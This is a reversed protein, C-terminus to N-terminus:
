SVLVICRNTIAHKLTAITQVSWVPEDPLDNTKRVPSTAIISCAKVAVPVNAKTMLEPCAYASRLTQRQLVSQKKQETPAARTAILKRLFERHMPKTGALEFAESDLLRHESIRGGQVVYHVTRLLVFNRTKFSHNAIELHKALLERAGRNV